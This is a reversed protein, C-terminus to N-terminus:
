RLIGKQLGNYKDMLGASEGPQIGTGGSQPIAPGQGPAIAGGQEPSMPMGEPAPAIAGGQEPPMPMGEPTPAIGASLDDPAESLTEFSSAADPSLSDFITQFLTLLDPDQKEIATLFDRISTPDSPEVGLKQMMAFIDRIIEVKFNKIKNKSIFKQTELANNQNEVDAMKRDVNSKMEEPSLGTADAIPAETGNGLPAGEPAIGEPPTGGPQMGSSQNNLEEQLTAM